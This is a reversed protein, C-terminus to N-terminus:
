FNIVFGYREDLIRAIKEVNSFEIDNNYVCFVSKGINKVRCGGGWDFSIVLYQDRYEVRDRGFYWNGFVLERGADELSRKEVIDYIFDCLESVNGLVGVFYLDRMFSDSSNYGIHLVNKNKCQLIVGAVRYKFRYRNLGYFLKSGLMIEEYDINDVLEGEISFDGLTILYSDETIFLRADSGVFGIEVEGGFHSVWIKDYIVKLSPRVREFNSVYNSVERDMFLLEIYNLFSRQGSSGVVLRGGGSVSYRGNLDLHGGDFYLVEDAWDFEFLM